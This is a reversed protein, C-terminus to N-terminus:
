LKCVIDSEQIHKYVREGNLLMIDYYILTSNYYTDVSTIKGKLEFLDIPHTFVVIDGIEYKPEVEVEKVESIDEWDDTKWCRRLYDHGGDVACNGCSCWKYDHRTKSEIIDGCKKCRAKNSVIITCKM